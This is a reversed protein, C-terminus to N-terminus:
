HKQKNKHKNTQKHITRWGIPKETREKAELHLCVVVNNGDGISTQELQEVINNTGTWTTTRTKRLM